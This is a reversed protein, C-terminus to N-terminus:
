GTAVRSSKSDPAPLLCAGHERDGLDHQDDAFLPHGPSGRGPNSWWAGVQQGGPRTSRPGTAAGGPTPGPAPDGSANGTKEQHQGPSGGAPAPGRDPGPGARGDDTHDQHGVALSLGETGHNGRDTQAPKKVLDKSLREPTSSQCYVTSTPVFARCALPRSPVGMVSSAVRWSVALWGDAGTGTCGCNAAMRSLM